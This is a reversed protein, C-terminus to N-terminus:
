ALFQAMVYNSVDLGKDTLALYVASDAVNRDSNNRERVAKGNEESGSRDAYMLEGSDKGGDTIEGEARGADDRQMNDECLRRVTQGAQIDVRPARGVIQAERGRYQLLGDRINKRIVDGYVEEPRRGFLKEFEGCDIGETMRLGLFFFEEMQEQMSLTQIEERCGFPDKLYDNLQSSNRFRVNELLSAAGIGFGIYNKRKWYGCNHRCEYGEKAYNSIEYRRYGERDLIDKTEQYMLRDTDEDPIDLEGSEYKEFFPTGEEVILSYSSIHEPSLETVFSLTEQYSEVTQNPIDAMLDVNINNFGCERLLHFSDLFDQYSHIRGLAKLEKEQASQLGISVRNVGIEKLAQVKERTLTGPNAEATFEFFLKDGKGERGECVALPLESLKRGIGLLEEASLCTPTGGGLFVTQIVYEKQLTKKWYEMEELLKKVYAEKEQGSAEASLFDCYLCKQVCFPIHIYLSLPKKKNVRRETNSRM